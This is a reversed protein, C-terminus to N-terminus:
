EDGFDREVADCEDWDANYDYFSSHNREEAEYLYGDDPEPYALSPRASRKFHQNVNYM